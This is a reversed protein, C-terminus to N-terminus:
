LTFVCHVRQGIFGVHAETVRDVAADADDREELMLKTLKLYIEATSFRLERLVLAETDEGGSM